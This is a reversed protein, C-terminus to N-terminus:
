RGCLETVVSLDRLRKWDKKKQLMFNTHLYGQIFWDVYIDWNLVQLVPHISPQNNLYKQTNCKFVSKKIVFILTTNHLSSIFLIAFFFISLVLATASAWHYLVSKDLMCSPGLNPPEGTRAGM